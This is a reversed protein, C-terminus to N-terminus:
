RVRVTELPTELVGGDAVGPRSIELGEARIWMRPAHRHSPEVVRTEPIELGGGDAGDPRRTALEAVRMWMRPGRRSSAVVRTEVLAKAVASTAAAGADVPIRVADPLLTREVAEADPNEL